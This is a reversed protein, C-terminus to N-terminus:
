LESEGGISKPSPSSVKSGTAGQVLKGLSKSISTASQSLEYSIRKASKSLMGFIGSLISNVELLIVGNKDFLFIGKNFLNQFYFSKILIYWM